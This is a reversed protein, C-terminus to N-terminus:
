TMVKARAATFTRVAREAIFSTCDIIPIMPRTSRRGLVMLTTAVVFILAQMLISVLSAVVTTTWGPIALDTALRIVIAVSIGLITTAAIVAGAILVRVFVVDTYVSIASLGHAALSTVNMKSTGGYRRGRVTPVRFLPIRSRMIAAALNNWIEPMHVLRRVHNIPLLSFNGFNILRGTARFFLAKYILYGFQFGPSESRKKRLALVANQPHSRAASVLLAIDKPQDEGDSDMVVVAEIDSHKAM